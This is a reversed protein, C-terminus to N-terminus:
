LHSKEKDIPSLRIYSRNSKLESRVVRDAYADHLHDTQRTVTPNSKNVDQLILPPIKNM